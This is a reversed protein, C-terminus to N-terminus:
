ERTKLVEVLDLHDLRRRVVLASVTTAAVIVLASVAYSYTGIVLPLRFMETDTLRVVFAALGYGLALGLPVAAITVITLEGLLITSIEGRTFGIVRLTALERSRESLSIRANNYVVGFAIVSAFIAYVLQVRRMMDSMTNELSEIAARRPLVGAVRPTAKLRRYLADEGARDIQLYAGSLVEGEEMLRHLAGLDMYASTGIYDSVTDAVPLERVARTGELLEVRITQGRGTGLLEALKRSLVLGDAPLTVVASGADIVRSLRAGAPVGTIGVTRSLPGATLRAAVARLPEAAIVGPLRRIEDLGAPSTPHAFTVMVDYRQAVNFLTDSMADLADRTFNGVVLLSAGLAIGIVSLLVREPHRQLTRLVIRAPQSLLPKLGAREPWSEAFSAPSEPRMAEAPPLGVARRVAGIAGALAAVAGIGVGGVAVQVDLRYLLVPFHFFQAYIRTLASGLWAGAAVGIVAGTLAVALSWKVYHAAVAANGYGLAKVAAIQPRQVLVIRSLVVNLLFAAVCLFIGPILRGSGKLNQLKNSLFWNSPQLSRPLAGMGGYDAELLADLKDTVERESANRMLRIVLDNFAGDMQFASALARREMWFLGFRAEDPLLEGHRVAYIYEPSLALGVIRLDRRRGNIVAGVSNGPRLGHARAFSESALVEDPRGPEIYRGERLFLDCLAPRRDAPISILRGTAPDPMGPVDLTVDVVVRSEVEAVGPIAEIRPVLSLPARTLSVFVDGFRYRDYYTRLSLDLSDFTSIMAVFIAIGAAMVLAIAVAQGRIAWLDRILKRDLATLGRRSGPPRGREVTVV